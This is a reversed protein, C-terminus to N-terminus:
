LAEYRSSCHQCTYPRGTCTRSWHNGCRIYVRYQSHCRCLLTFVHKRVSFFCSFGAGADQFMNDICRILNLVCLSFYVLSWILSLIIEACSREIEYLSFVEWFWGGPVNGNGVGRSLNRWLLILLGGVLWPTFQTITINDPVSPLHNVVLGALYVQSLWHM